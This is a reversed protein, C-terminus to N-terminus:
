GRTIIKAVHVYRFGPRPMEVLQSVGMINQMVKEISLIFMEQFNSPWLHLILFFILGKLMDFVECFRPFGWAWGGWLMPHCQHQCSVHLYCFHECSTRPRPSPRHHNNYCEWIYRNWLQKVKLFEKGIEYHLSHIM